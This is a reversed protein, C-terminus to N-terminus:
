TENGRKEWMGLSQSQSGGAGIQPSQDDAVSLNVIGSSANIVGADAGIQRQFHGPRRRRVADLVSFGVFIADYRCRDDDASIWRRIHTPPHFSIIKSVSESNTSRCVSLTFLPESVAM